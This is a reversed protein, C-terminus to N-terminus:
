ASESDWEDKVAMAVGLLFGLFTFLALAMQINPSSHTTPVSAWSVVRLDDFLGPNATPAIPLGEASIDISLGGIRTARESYQERNAVSQLHEGYVEAFANAVKASLDPRGSTFSLRLLRTEGVRSIELSERLAPVAAVIKSADDLDAFRNEGIPGRGVISRVFNVVSLLTGPNSSFEESLDYRGVVQAVIANSQILNAHTDLDLFLTEVNGLQGAQTELLMTTQATYKPPVVMLYIFGALLGALIYFLVSRTHRSARGLVRKLELEDHRWNTEM